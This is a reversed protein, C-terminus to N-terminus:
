TLPVWYLTCDVRGYVASLVAQYVSGKSIPVATSNYRLWHNGREYHHVSALGLNHEHNLSSSKPPGVRVELQARSGNGDAAALVGVLFGDTAATFTRGVTRTQRAGFAVRQVPVWNAYIRPTGVTPQSEVQVTLGKRVPACFSACEYWTDSEDYAHASSAALLANNNSTDRLFVSGRNPRDAWITCVVFGDTTASFPTDLSQEQWEGLYSQDEAPGFPIFRYNKDPQGWTNVYNGVVGDTKRVPMLFSNIRVQKDDDTSYHVSAAGRVLQPDETNDTKGVIYGRPGNGGVWLHGILLGDRGKLKPKDPELMEPAGFNKLEPQEEPLYDRLAAIMATKVPGNPLLNTIPSMSVDIKAQKDALPILAPLSFCSRYWSELKDQTLGGTTDTRVKMTSQNRKLFDSGNYASEVKVSGSNVIGNYGMELGAIIEKESSKEVVSKDIETTMTMYGGLHGHKLYHTGYEDFIAKFASTDSATLAAIREQFKNSLLTENRWVKFVSQVHFAYHYETEHSTFLRNSDTMAFHAKASIAVGSGEVDTKISFKRKFDEETKLLEQLIVKVLQTHEVVTIQDPVDYETKTLEPGFAIKQKNNYTVKFIPQGCFEGSRANYGVKLVSDLGPLHQAPKSTQTTADQSQTTPTSM